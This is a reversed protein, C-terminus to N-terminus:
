FPWHMPAAWPIPASNRVANKLRTFIGILYPNWHIDRPSNLSDILPRLTIEIDHSGFDIYAEYETILNLFTHLEFHTQPLPFNEILTIKEDPISHGSLCIFRGLYDVHKALFCSKIRDVKFNHIRFRDFLHFLM